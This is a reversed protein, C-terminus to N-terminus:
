LMFDWGMVKAVANSTDRINMLVVGGFIHVVIKKVPSYGQAGSAQESAFRMLYIGKLFGFLGILWIAAMLSKITSEPIMNMFGASEINNFASSSLALVENTDTWTPSVTGKAISYVTSSLLLMTGSAVQWFASAISRSPDNGFKGSLYFAYLGQIFLFLGVMYGVAVALEGLAKFTDVHDVGAANAFPSLSLLLLLCIRKTIM